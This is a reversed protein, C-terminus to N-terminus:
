VGSLPMKSILAGFTQRRVKISRESKLVKVRKMLMANDGVFSKDVFM